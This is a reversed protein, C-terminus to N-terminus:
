GSSLQRRVEASVRGGDARGGVAPTVVKMVAGMGRMGEVGVEAIAEAVMAQLDEDGLQEPLYDTLVEGEALEREALEPRGAASFSDAAERRKKAERRVVALVNDDSLERAAPGAVEAVSVASLVMRLTATRLEDRAKMASTLDNQLREKLSM